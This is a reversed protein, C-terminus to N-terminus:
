SLPSIINSPVEVEEEAGFESMGAVFDSGRMWMLEGREQRDRAVVAM